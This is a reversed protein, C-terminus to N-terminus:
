PCTLNRRSRNLKQHNPRRRRRRNVRHPQAASAAPRVRAPASKGISAGVARPTARNKTSRHASTRLIRLRGPRDFISRSSRVTASPNTGPASIAPIPISDAVQTADAAGKRVLDVGSSTLFISVKLGATIGGNAITFGVSSLEHDIGHTIMIVLDRSNESM